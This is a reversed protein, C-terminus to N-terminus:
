DGDELLIIAILAYAALDMLTDVISENVMELSEDKVINTLRNFKDSLRVLCGLFPSVGFKASGYFNSLPNEKGSYGASKRSHIDGLEELLQHFRPHGGM